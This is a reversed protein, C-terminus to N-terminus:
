GGRATGPPQASTLARIVEMREECVAALEDIVGQKEALERQCTELAGRLRDVEADIKEIVGLREQGAAALETIMNEKQESETRRAELELEFRKITELHRRAGDDGDAVLRPMERSATTRSSPAEPLQADGAGLQAELEHIRQLYWDTAVELEWSRLQLRELQRVVENRADEGAPKM